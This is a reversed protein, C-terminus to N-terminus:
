SPNSCIFLLYQNRRGTPTKHTLATGLLYSGANLHQNLQHAAGKTAPLTAHNWWLQPVRELM